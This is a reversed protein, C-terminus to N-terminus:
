KGEVYPTLLKRLRRTANFLHAKVSGTRLGLKEAIEKLALGEYHRLIFVQKQRPSLQEIAKSIEIELEKREAHKDPMDSSIGRYSNQYSFLIDDELAVNQYRKRKRTYDICANKAIRYLWTYFAAEGKFKDLAKFARLFIEQSLDFADDVHHTFNYALEYIQKQYKLVLEDFAKTDGSKFRKVLFGDIDTKM